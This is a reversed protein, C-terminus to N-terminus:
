PCWHVQLPSAAPALLLRVPLERPDAGDLAREFVRRKADGRLLLIRTRSRALLAPSASIRMPWAGAGPCGGAHFGVYDAQTALSHGLDDAGPFLSATHGDEGMGLVAVDVRRLPVANAAAVASEFTDGLRVLPEFTARAAENTLLSAYAVRANSDPDNPPLWREDVLGVDVHPWDLPLESLAAYVPAPTTGGSVLLRARSTEELASRLAHAIAGAAAARWVSADAHAQFDIAGAASRPMARIM